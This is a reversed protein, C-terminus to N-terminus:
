ASQVVFKLKKKLKVQKKNYARDELRVVMIMTVVMFTWAPIANVLPILEIIVSGFYLIIKRAAKDFYNVGIVLFWSFFIITLFLTIGWGIFLAAANGVVPIAHLLKTIMQIFDALVAIFIMMFAQINGIRRKKKGGM